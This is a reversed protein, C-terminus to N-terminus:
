PSPAMEFKLEGGNKIQNWLLEPRALEAGNWLIRAPVAGAGLPGDAAITLVGSDLEVEARRYRPCGVYYLDSGAIPYFGLASFIYWSSEAGADDNGPLGDPADLFNTDMAWRLTECALDPRGAASFLYSIHLNPENGQWYYKRSSGWAVTGRELSAEEARSKEFFSWLERVFAESGGLSSILWDADHPAFWRYQLANGETFAANGEDYTDALVADPDFAAADPFEGDANRPLFFGKAANWLNRHNLKMSCLRDAEARGLKRAMECLANDGVAYEQTKSVSAAFRNAALYGLSLYDEIGERGLFGSGPETAHLATRMLLDFSEEAPFEIGKLYSDAVVIDAPTGVMTNTEGNAASWKPFYGGTRAQALLSHVFDRQYGRYALTLLPHESRYTDWMSFDSYYASGTGWDVTRPKGDFGLFKGDIDSMLTPMGFVHYLATYFVTLDADSEADIRFKSLERRWRERAKTRVEDFSWGEAEADFNARANAASVYSLAVKVEAKPAASWCVMAGCSKDPGCKKKGDEFVLDAGWTGVSEPPPAIVAKFYVTYGGFQATLGGFADVHGAIAGDDAVTLGAGTVATIPITHGLDVIVCRDGQHGAPFTYRHFAARDSATIEVTIGGAITVTYFGPEAYETDKLYTSMYAEDYLATTDRGLRPMLGVNGYEPVGTGSFHNQSFGSIFEDRFFYGGCHTYNASIPPNRSVTDPGPKVMGFPVMPGPLTNGIGWMGNGDTGIFPNVHATPDFTGGDPGADPRGADGAWADPTLAADAGDGVTRPETSCGSLLLALCVLFASGPRGKRKV